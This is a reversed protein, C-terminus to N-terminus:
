PTGVPAVPGQSLFRAGDPDIFGGLDSHRSILGHRGSPTSIAGPATGAPLGLLGAVWAWSQEFFGSVTTAPGQGRSAASAAHATNAAHAALAPSAPLALLATLVLAASVRRTTTSSM